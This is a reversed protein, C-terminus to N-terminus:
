GGAVTEWLVLSCISISTEWQTTFQRAGHEVVAKDSFGILPMSVEGHLIALPGRNRGKKSTQRISQEWVGAKDLRGQVLSRLLDRGDKGTWHM